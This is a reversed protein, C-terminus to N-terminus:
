QCQHRPKVRPEMARSIKDVLILHSSMSNGSNAEEVLYLCVEPDDLIEASFVVCAFGDFLGVM